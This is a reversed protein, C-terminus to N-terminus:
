KPAESSQSSQSPQDSVPVSVPHRDQQEGLEDLMADIRRAAAIIRNLRDTLRDEPLVSGRSVLTEAFGIVVTLPSRVRHLTIRRQSDRERSDRLAQELEEVRRQLTDVRNDGPASDPTPSDPSTSTMAHTGDHQIV